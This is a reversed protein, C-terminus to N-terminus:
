AHLSEQQTNTASFAALVTMLEAAAFAAIVAPRKDKAPGGIPCHLRALADPAVDHDALFNKLGARKTKSGIMGVYAADARSLAEATILYDLGHDHTMVFYASGAPATRILQEPLATEIKEATDAAKALEAQRSDILHVKVPLPALATILARGVHGAGFVFVQPLQAQAMRARALAAQRDEDDLVHIQIDVNGGCCQAIEPGLPVALHRASAGTRLMERATDLMRFELQGGGITGVVQNATVFMEAGSERPASGRARSIVVRAVAGSQAFLQELLTASVNSM